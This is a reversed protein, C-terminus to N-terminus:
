NLKREASRAQDCVRAARSPVARREADETALNVVSGVEETERRGLAPESGIGAVGKPRRRWQSTRRSPDRCGVALAYHGGRDIGLAVLGLGPFAGRPFGAIARGVRVCGHAPAADGDGDFTPRAAPPRGHGVHGSRHASATLQTGGHSRRPWVRARILGTRPGRRAM